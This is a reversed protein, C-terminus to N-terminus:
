SELVCVLRRGTCRCRALTSRVREQIDCVFIATNNPRIRAIRGVASM